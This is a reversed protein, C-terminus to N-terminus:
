SLSAQYGKFIAHFAVGVGSAAATEIRLRFNHFLINDLDGTNFKDIASWNNLMTPNQLSSIARPTYPNNTSDFATIPLVNFGGSPNNNQPTTLETTVSWTGSTNATTPPFFYLNLHGFYLVSTDVSPSVSNISFAGSSFTDNAMPFSEYTILGAGYVYNIPPIAYHFPRISKVRKNTNEIVQKIYTYRDDSLLSEARSVQKAENLASQFISM